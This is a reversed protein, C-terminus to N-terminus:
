KGPIRASTGTIGRRDEGVPCDRLCFGCPSVHHKGLEEARIACARTDTIGGPYAKGPLANVPCIRVCQMCRTCLDEGLISGAPLDAATFVSAFRVRPGYQPTLLMNNTGFTGLGALFAAHRHSFFVHPDEVVDRISGYGDRPIWVSPWGQESLWTAIRYGFGDLLTNVTRYLEYYWISPATELIPLPVPLGIVIVSRTAPFITKPRHAEPVWPEFPPCDWRDAAAFGVLPIDMERCKRRIQTELRATM